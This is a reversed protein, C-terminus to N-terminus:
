AGILGHGATEALDNYLALFRQALQETTVTATDFTARSATGTPAAWGTKRTGIVRNGGVYMVKSVPLIFDGAPTLDGSIPDISVPAYALLGLTPNWALIFAQTDPLDPTAQEMPIAFAANGDSGWSAISM